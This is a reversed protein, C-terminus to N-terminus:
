PSKGNIRFIEERAGEWARRKGTEFLRYMHPSSIGDMLLGCLRRDRLWFSWGAPGYGLRPLVGTGAVEDAWATWEDGDIWGPIVSGAGDQALRVLRAQQADVSAAMVARPPLAAEGAWVRALAMSALDYVLFAPNTFAICGMFALSHPLDLSFLNRYLRPLRRGNSGAAAAWGAPQERTPDHEGALAYDAQYGTCFVIADLDDIRRGDALLVARPGEVQRLARVLSARGALVEHFISDSVLPPARTPLPANALDLAVASPIRPRQSDTDIGDDKNPLGRLHIATLSRRMMADSAAVPLFAKAARLVLAKRHNFGHDLPKGDVVRPLIFADHRRAVYVHKAHGALTTATDVASNSFGVILVTKGQFSAPRKYGSSHLVEGEFHEMGEVYPMVPMKNIGTAFVVKDFWWEETTTEKSTTKVGSAAACGGGGTATATEVRWKGSAEDREVALVETGLRM